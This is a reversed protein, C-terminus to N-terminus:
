DDVLKRLTEADQWKQKKEQYQKEYFKECAKQGDTNPIPRWCETDRSKKIYEFSKKAEIAKNILRKKLPSLKKRQTNSWDIACNYISMEEQLIKREQAGQQMKKAKSLKDQLQQKLKIYTPLAVKLKTLVEVENRLPGPLRLEGCYDYDGKRSVSVGLNYGRSSLQNQKKININKPPPTQTYHVKGNEDVWKYMKAFVEGSTVIVMIILFLIKKM